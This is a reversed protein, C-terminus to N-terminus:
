LLTLYAQIDASEADSIFLDPDNLGQATIAFFTQYHLMLQSLDKASADHFYPATKSVGWLSPIRFDTNAFGPNGTVAPILCVTPEAACPDGTILARGPDPTVMTIVGNVAFPNGPVSFTFTHVPNGAENLEATFNTAFRQGPPVGFLENVTNFSNTVNLMPGDHCQACLGRKHDGIFFTRGRKQSDTYGQPLQPVIGFKSFLRLKPSSFLQDRQFAAIADAQNATPEITNQYHTHVASVAQHSLDNERGDYMLFSLLGVDNTSPISRNLVATRTSPSDAMTVNAPLPIPIRVTTDHLLRTYSNGVGNDSDLPRFLPNHPDSAYLAQAQQPTITGTESTHCTSCVRGNGRFTANNFLLLGLVDQDLSAESTESTTEEASPTGGCGALLSFVAFAKYFTKM